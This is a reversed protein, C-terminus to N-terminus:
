TGEGAHEDIVEYELYDAMDDLAIDATRITQLEEDTAVRTPKDDAFEAAPDSPPRRPIVRPPEDDVTAPHRVPWTAMSAQIEDAAEQQLGAHEQDELRLQQAVAILALALLDGDALAIACADCRLELPVNEMTETADGIAWVGRCLTRVVGTLQNPKALHFSTDVDGPGTAIRRCWQRDGGHRAREIADMAASLQRAEGLNFPGLRPGFGRLLGRRQLDDGPM